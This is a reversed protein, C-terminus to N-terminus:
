RCCVPRDEGLLASSIKEVDETHASSCGLLGLAIANGDSGVTSVGRGMVRMDELVLVTVKEVGEREVDDDDRKGGLLSTVFSDVSKDCGEDLAFSTTGDAEEISM